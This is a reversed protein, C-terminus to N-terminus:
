RTKLAIYEKVKKVLGIYNHQNFLNSCSDSFAPTNSILFDNIKKLADASLSLLSCREPKEVEHFYMKIDVSNCYGVIQPIEHWNQQLICTSVMLETGAKICYQRFWEFNQMYEKYITGKRISELTEKSRADMSVNIGFKGRNLVDMQKDGLITCNTQIRVVCNPNNKILYEWMKYYLPILFPEGGIFVAEELHDLYPLIKELFGDNYVTPIHIKETNALSSSKLPSCM